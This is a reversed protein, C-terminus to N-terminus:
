HFRKCSGANILVVKFTRFMHYINMKKFLIFILWKDYKFLFIHVKNREITEKSVLKKHTKFHPLKQLFYQVYDLMSFIKNNNEINFFWFIITKLYVWKRLLQPLFKPPNQCRWENARYRRIVQTVQPRTCYCITGTILIFSVITSGKAIITSCVIIIITGTISIFSVPTSCVM